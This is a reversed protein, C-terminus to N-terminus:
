VTVGVKRLDVRHRMPDFLNTSVAAQLLIRGVSMFLCMYCIELVTPVGGIEIEVVQWLYEGKLTVDEAEFDSLKIELGECLM